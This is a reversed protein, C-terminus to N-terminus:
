SAPTWRIADAVVSGRSTNTSVSVTVLPNELQFEGLLNWGDDISEGDFEIPVVRDGDTVWIDFDGWRQRGRREGVQVNFNVGPGFGAGFSNGISEPNPVHYELKWSGSRPLNAAFHVNAVTSTRFARALTRRYKGYAQDLQQRSWEDFVLSFGSTGYSALGQDHTTEGLAFTLFQMFWPMSRSEETSDVSFGADLDDVVVSDGDEYQWSAAQVLPMESRAVEDYVRRRPVDVSFSIRNYSLYPNVRIRELPQESTLAIQMSGNGPIKIPQTVEYEGESENFDSTGYEVTILGPVPEANEIYFSSEYLPVGYEQDPLRVTRANSARFGPLQTNTLWDGFIPTIDIGIDNAVAVLDTYTYNTGEYRTRLESLLLGLQENGLWDRTLHAMARGWLHLVHLNSKSNDLDEYEIEDLPQALMAEWVNPLNIHWDYFMRNLTRGDSARAVTAIGVASQGQSATGMTVHASYFGEQETSVSGALYSMLYSLPIAGPGTADTQYQMLNNSAALYINGGTVDNEFYGTLFALIKELREEQSIEKDEALRDFPAKFGAHLFSGERIAFVGPFSQATDMRWGGRYSRLNIPTEVITFSRYPYSLGYTEASVLMEKVHSKLEDLVPAFLDVNTVSGPSVLLEFEIGEIETTRREFASAFMAIEHVAASPQFSVLRSDGATAIEAQGPGAVNWDNPVVVGIDMEFFDRPRIHKLDRKVHAGPLPYWALDPVLAVYRSSNIYAETGQFLLGFAQFIDSSIVDVATDLYAFDKNLDGSAEIELNFSQSPQIPVSVNIALLGDRFKFPANSGNLRLAHIEYGPNLSLILENDADIQQLSHMDLSFDIHTSGGPRITLRGTVSDTDIQHLESYPEHTAAMEVRSTHESRFQMQVLAISLTGLSLLVVAAILLRPKNTKDLRPYLVAAFCLFAFSLFLMGARHTIIELNTFTPALFSPLTDAVTYTNIVNLVYIPVNNQAWITAGVLGLAIAAAIVRLRVLVTVAMVLAVWLLINPIMDIFLTALTVFLEPERIGSEPWTLRAVVGAIWYVAILAVIPILMLVTIGTARGCVLELNTIPLVGVVEDLRDRKDRSRVDFALFIVWIAFFGILAPYLQYPAMLPSNLLTTSSISSSFSYNVFSNILLGVCMFLTVVIFLWTRALRRNMRMEAAAVSWISRLNM